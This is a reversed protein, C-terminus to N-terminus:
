EERSDQRVVSEGGRRLQKIVSASGSDGISKAKALLPTWRPAM